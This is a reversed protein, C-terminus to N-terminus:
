APLRSPRANDQCAPHHRASELAPTASGRTGGLAPTVIGITAIPLPSRRKAIRSPLHSLGVPDPPYPSSLILHDPLPTLTPVPTHIALELFTHRTSNCALLTGSEDILRAAVFRSGFYNNVAVVPALIRPLEGLPSSCSEYGMTAQTAATSAAGSAGTAGCVPVSREYESRQKHQIQDVSSRPLNKFKCSVSAPPRRRCWRPPSLPARQTDTSPGSPTTASLRAPWPFPTPTDPIPPHGSRFEFFVM